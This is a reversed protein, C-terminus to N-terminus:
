NCWNIAVQFWKVLADQPVSVEKNRISHHVHSRLGGRLLLMGCCADCLLSVDASEPQCGGVRRSEDKKKRPKQPSKRGKLSEKPDSIIYHVAAVGWSHEEPEICPRRQKEVEPQRLCCEGKGCPHHYSRYKDGAM